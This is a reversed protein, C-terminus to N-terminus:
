QPPKRAQYKPPTERVAAPAEPHVHCVQGDRWVVQTEGDRWRQAKLETLAETMATQAKQALVSLGSIDNVVKM